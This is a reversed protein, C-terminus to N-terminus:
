WRHAVDVVVRSGGGPGDLVFARVPLRARVGLGITTRGEFSGAWAAQRFTDYGDVDVLEDPDAPTYTSRGQEDYAPAKVSVRLFSGGRLPVPRGSGEAAVEDVYGVRYGAPDGDVDVVLRDFCEHRGSRVDTVTGASFPDATEPLSGWVLGCYPEVANAGAPVVLGAGTALLLAASWSMLRKM